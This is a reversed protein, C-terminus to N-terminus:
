HIACIRDHGCLFNRAPGCVPTPQADADILLAIGNEGDAVYGTYSINLVTVRIKWWNHGNSCNPGSLVDAIAEAPAVTLVLGDISPQQHVKVGLRLRTQQGVTLDISDNCFSGAPAPGPRLSTSSLHVKRWGDMTAPAASGGGTIASSVACRGMLSSSWWKKKIIISGLVRNAPNIGCMCGAKVYASQGKVMPLPAACGPTPIPTLTTVYFTTPGATVVIATNAPIPTATQASGALDVGAAAGCDPTLISDVPTQVYRM